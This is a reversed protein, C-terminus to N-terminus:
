DLTVNLRLQHTRLFFSLYFFSSLCLVDELNLFDTLTSDLKRVWSYKVVPCVCTLLDREAIAYFADRERMQMNCLDTEILRSYEHAKIRNIPLERACQKHM